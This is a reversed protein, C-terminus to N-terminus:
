IGVNLHPSLFFISVYNPKIIHWLDFFKDGPQSLQSEELDFGWGGQAPSVNSIKHQVKKHATVSKIEEM